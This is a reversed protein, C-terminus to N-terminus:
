LKLSLFIASRLDNRNRSILFESADAFVYSVARSAISALNLLLCERRHGEVLHAIRTSKQVRPAYTRVRARAHPSPYRACAGKFVRFAKFVKDRADRERAGELATPRARSNDSIEPASVRSRTAAFFRGRLRDCDRSRVSEARSRRGAFPVDSNDRNTDLQARATPWNGRIM